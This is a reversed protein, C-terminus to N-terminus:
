RSRRWDLFAVAPIAVLGLVLTIVLGVAAGLGVGLLSDWSRWGLVGGVVIPGYLVLGLLVNAWLGIATRTAGPEPYGEERRMRNTWGFPARLFSGVEVPVLAGPRKNDAPEPAM